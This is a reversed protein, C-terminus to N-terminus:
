ALYSTVTPRFQLTITCSAGAPLSVNSPSISFPEEVQWDVETTLIGSNTMIFTRRATEMLPCLKFDVIPPFVLTHEPLSARVPIYFKGFWTSFEIVDNYNEQIFICIGKRCPSFHHSYDM